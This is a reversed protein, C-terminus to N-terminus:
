KLEKARKTASEVAEIFAARIKNKELTHIGAITTGGPSTVMDVLEEPHKDSEIVLKASGMVTQAALKMSVSKSLGMKVGGEALSNIVMFVYAPGSGSLGTIADLHKEEVFLCEGISKLIMEVVIKLKETVNKNVAFASMAALVLAPTNPMVRVIALEKGLINEINEIPIGAAISVVLTDKRIVSSLEGCVTRIKDPKVALIIVDCNQVIEQNKKFTRVGLSKFFSLRKSSVDSVSINVKDIIKSRVLGEIFAQAMKGAGIFGLKKNIKM